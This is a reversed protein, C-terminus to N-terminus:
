RWELCSNWRATYAYRHTLGNTSAVKLIFNPDATTNHNFASTSGCHLVYVEGAEHRHPPDYFVGTVHPEHHVAYPRDPNSTVEAHLAGNEWDHLLSSTARYLREEQLVDELKLFTRNGEGYTNAHSM